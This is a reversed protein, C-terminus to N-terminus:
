QVTETKQPSLNTTPAPRHGDIIQPTTATPKATSASAPQGIQHSTSRPQLIIREQTRPRFHTALWSWIFYIAGLVSVVILAIWLATELFTNRPATSSIPLAAPKTQTPPSPPPQSGTVSTNPISTATAPLTDAVPSNSAPPISAASLSSNPVPAAQALAPPAPLPQPSPNTGKSKPVEVPPPSLSTQSTTGSVPKASPVTTTTSAVAQAQTPASPGPNPPASPSSAETTQPVPNHTPAVVPSATANTQPPAKDSGTTLVTAPAISSAPQVSVPTTSPAGNTVQGPAPDTHVPNSRTAAVAPTQSATSVTAQTQPLPPLEIPWTAPSVSWDTLQGHRARLLIVMPM